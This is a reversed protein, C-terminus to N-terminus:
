VHDYKFHQHLFQKMYTITKMSLQFPLFLVTLYITPVFHILTLAALDQHFGPQFLSIRITQSFFRNIYHEVFRCINAEKVKAVAKGAPILFIVTKLSSLTSFIFSFQPFSGCEVLFGELYEKRGGMQWAVHPSFEQISSSSPSVHEKIVDVAVMLICIGM